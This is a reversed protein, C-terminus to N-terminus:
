LVELALYFIQVALSLACSPVSYHWLLELLVNELHYRYFDCSSFEINGVVRNYSFRCCCRFQADDERADGRARKRLSRKLSM